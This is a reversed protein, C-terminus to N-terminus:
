YNDSSGSSIPSVFAITPVSTVALRLQQILRRGEELRGFALRRTETQSKRKCIQTETKGNSISLLAAAVATYGRRWGLGSLNAQYSDIHLYIETM